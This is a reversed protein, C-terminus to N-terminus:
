VGFETEAALDVASRVEFPLRHNWALRAAEHLSTDAPAEDGHFLRNTVGPKLARIDDVFSGADNYARAPGGGAGDNAGGIHRAFFVWFFDARELNRLSHAGARRSGQCGGHLHLTGVIRDRRRARCRCMADAIGGLENLPALLIHHKRAAALLEIPRERRQKIGHSGHRRFEVGRWPARATGVVFVAIA